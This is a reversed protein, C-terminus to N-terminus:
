QTLDLKWVAMKHDIRKEEPPLQMYDGFIQTLYTEWCGPAWYERGEFPVKVFRVVDKRLCREGVGYIGYTVAGVYCSGDYDHATAIRNMKKIIREYGVIRMWLVMPTKALIRKWSVGKGLKARGCQILYRYRKMKRFLTEAEKQEEPWGDQPFIDIFLHLM